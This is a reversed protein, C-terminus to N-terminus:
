ALAAELAMLLKSPEDALASPLRGSADCKALLERAREAGANAQPSVAALPAVIDAFSRLSSADDRADPSFVVRKEERACSARVFRELWRATARVKAYDVHEPTDEPTHYRASRGSTLFVFPVDRKWFADYDSLPPIIEADARRVVVGDEARALGDVIAATGASREAGLAFVSRKVDDPLPLDPALAHGVLDMCLMMDIRDLDFGVAERAHSAFYASGMQGTLFWPPEEADFAAFLVGRGEPKAKTIAAGVDALIAVAAANDDAGPYFRGSQADGGLHDYHAAVLVWRDVDGKSVALVNTATTNGIRQEFPDLGASRLADVVIARARIGGLTGAGRGACERSCLREVLDKPNSM